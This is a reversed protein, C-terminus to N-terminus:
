KPFLEKKLNTYKGKRISVPTRKTVSSEPTSQIPIRTSDTTKQVSNEFNKSLEEKESSTSERLPKKCKRKCLYCYTAALLILIFVVSAAIVASRTFPTKHVTATEQGNTPRHKIHCTVNPNNMSTLSARPHKYTSTVTIIDGTINTRNEHSIPSGEFQWTIELAAKGSASCTTWIIEDAGESSHKNDDKATRKKRSGHQLKFVCSLAMQSVPFSGKNTLTETGDTTVKEQVPDAIIEPPQWTIDPLPIGTASCTVANAEGFSPTPGELITPCVKGKYAGLPYTNFLCMYCTEDEKKLESILISSRSTSADKVAVHKDYPSLVNVGYRKSYTVMNELLDGKEKQWTVQRVDLVSQFECTLSVSGGIVAATSYECTVESQSRM